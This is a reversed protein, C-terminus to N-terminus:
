ITNSKGINSLRTSFWEKKIKTSKCNPTSVRLVKPSQSPVCSVGDDTVISFNM